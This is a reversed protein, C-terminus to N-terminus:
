GSGPRRRPSGTPSGTTSASAAGPRRPDRARMGRPWAARPRTPALPPGHPEPDPLRNPADLVAAEERPRPAVRGVGDGGVGEVGDDDAAGVGMGPERDPAQGGYPRHRSDPQNEGVGVDGIEAPQGTAARHAVGVARAHPQRGVRHEAGVRHPVDAVGDGEHHGVRGILRAIRGLGDLDRPLRQRRRHAETPCPRLARGPDPGLDGAVQGEGGLDAVPRLRLGGEGGGVARHAQGQRIVAHDGIVQLGARAEGGVVWPRSAPGQGQAALAAVGDAVREGLVDEPDIRRAQAHDGRIHAAAEAGLDEHVALVREARHRRLAQPAGDEPLGPAALMEQAVRLPAVVEGREGHREVGIPPEEAQLDIELGIEAGIERAKSGEHGRVARAHRRAAVVDRGHM